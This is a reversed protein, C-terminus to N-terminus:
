VGVRRGARAAVRRGGCTLAQLGVSRLHVFLPNMKSSKVDPQRRDLPMEHM